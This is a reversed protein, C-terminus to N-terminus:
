EDSLGLANRLLRRLEERTILRIREYDVPEGPMPTGTPTPTPEEGAQVLVCRDVFLTNNQGPWEARYLIAARGRTGYVPFTATVETWEGRIRTEEGRLMPADFLSVGWPQIGVSVLLGAEPISDTNVMCSMTYKPHPLEHAPVSFEWYLGFLARSYAPAFARVSYQGDYVRETSQTIEPRKCPYPCWPHNDSGTKYELQMPDPFYLEPAGQEKWGNEMSGNELLNAPAQGWVAGPCIAVFLLSLIGVIWMVALFWREKRM